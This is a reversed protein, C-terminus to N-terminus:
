AGAPARGAATASGEAIQSAFHPFLTAGEGTKKKGVVPGGHQKRIM